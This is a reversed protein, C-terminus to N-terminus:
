TLILKIVISYAIFDLEIKQDDDELLDRGEDPVSDSISLIVSKLFNAKYGYM